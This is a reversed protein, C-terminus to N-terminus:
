GHTDERRTTPTGHALLPLQRAPSRAARIGTAGPQLPYRPDRMKRMVFFLIAIHFCATETEYLIQDVITAGGNM